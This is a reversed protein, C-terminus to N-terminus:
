DVRRRAYRNLGSLLASAALLAMTAPEPVANLRFRVTAAPNGGAYDLNSTMLGTPGMSANWGFIYFEKYDGLADTGAGKYLLQFYVGMMEKQVMALGTTPVIPDDVGGNLYRVWAGDGAMPDTALDTDVACLHCFSQSLNLITPVYGFNGVQRFEVDDNDMASIVNAPVTGPYTGWFTNSPPILSHLEYEGSDSITLTSNPGGPMTFYQTIFGGGPAEVVFNLQGYVEGTISLARASSLDAFLLICLAYVSSLLKKM